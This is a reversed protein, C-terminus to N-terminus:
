ARPTARLRESRWLSAMIASGLLFLSFSVLFTSRPSGSWRYLLIGLPGGVLGRVGVLAVHAGMHGVSDRHGAFHIPGMTWGMNVAAMAVGYVAFSVYVATLSGSLALGVPFLSLVLFAYTSIRVPDTHDLLKGFLPSALMIMAYFILGRATGAQAYDVHREEVLFIPIVPQLMMFAIGYSMYGLEYRRFAKDTKLITLAGAFPSRLSSRIERHLGRHIPSPGSHRGLGRRFRIRYYLWCSIFGCVGAAIYTWRYAGPWLDYLNGVAVAVVIIALAQSATAYGYARGRELPDYNTQFLANQAPIIAGAMVTSFIVVAAFPGGGHVFAVLVLSIRGLVGFVLFTSRKERGVLFNSWYSSFFLSIPQAMVLATIVVDASGLTKKAVYENLALM